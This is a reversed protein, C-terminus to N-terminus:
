PCFRGVVTGTGPHGPDPLYGPQTKVVVISATDGGIASGAKTSQSAVLVGMYSPIVSAAPASSSNGPDTTWKGGCVPPESTTEAFGKFANSAGGGSLDNDKAWQAGWWTVTAGSSLANTATVDGLVFSGSPLFAFILAQQANTASRYFGDSTFSDTVPQPGLAVTVPSIVCTAVGAPDTTGMCSQAGAGSGLTLTVTRGTIPTVGDELLTASLTATGAQAIVQLSGTSTLTDEELTVTFVVSVTSPLYFANGAFAMTLTYNGAPEGPTIPCAANGSGDTMAMCTEVGNLTFVVPQAALPKTGDETLTASVMVADHFDATTPGSNALASEERTVTFGSTASSAKHGSDGAFTATMTYPGPTESLTLPCGAIGFADTVAAPCGQSGLVFAVPVGVVPKNDTDVVIAQLTVPDDFDGSTAGIFRTSTERKGPFCPNAITTGYQSVKGFDNTTVSPIDNGFNFRCASGTGAQSYFPYFAAGSGGGSTTAFKITSYGEDYTSTDTTSTSLPGVGSDDPSGIVVSAPHAATGDPWNAQYGLGDKDDDEGLCGGVGRDTGCITDDADTGDPLKSCGSDGCLEYHGIEFNFAVNPKLGAWPVVQGPSATAYMAHFDWATTNCTTQDSNHQFGNAGSAVMSGTGSTTVDTIDTELGSSTDHITVVITDGTNMLLKSGGPTGDTTVYAQTTPENCNMVQTNTKDQLTNIHLNACWQTDGCGFSRTGPPYFQLELFAAGATSPNNSDSAATCAGYPKSNPDCLDLGLWLATYLQFNAISSGDQKPNPDTAPLQFKWKMNKGSTGAKSFFETTPEAHGIYYPYGRAYLSQIIEPTPETCNIDHADPDNCDPEYSASGLAATTRGTHPDSQSGCGVAFPLSCSLLLIGRRAARAFGRAWSQVDQKM